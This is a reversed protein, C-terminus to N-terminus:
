GGAGSKGPNGRSGGDFQLLAVTRGYLSSEELFKKAQKSLMFEGEVDNKGTPFSIMSSRQPSCKDGQNGDLYLQAERRTKFSKHKANSFGTVSSHVAEWSTFIGTKRGALVAYFKQKAM